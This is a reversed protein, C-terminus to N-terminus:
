YSEDLARHPNCGAVFVGYPREQDPASLPVLVATHPREPWKGTPLQTFRARLETDITIENTRVVHALQWPARADELRLDICPPKAESAAESFGCTAALEARTGDADLLYFLAFP